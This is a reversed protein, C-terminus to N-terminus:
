RRRCLWRKCGKGEIDERGYKCRRIADLGSKVTVIATQRYHIFISMGNPRIRTVGIREGWLVTDHVVLIDERGFVINRIPDSFRARTFNAFVSGRSSVLM